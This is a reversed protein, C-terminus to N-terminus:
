NQISKSCIKTYGGKIQKIHNKYHAMWNINTVRQGTIVVFAHIYIYIYIYLKILEVEVHDFSELQSWWWICLWLWFWFSGVVM